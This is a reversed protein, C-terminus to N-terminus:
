LNSVTEQFHLLSSHFMFVFILIMHRKVAQAKIAKPKIRPSVTTTRFLATLMQRSHIPSPQFMCVCLWSVSGGNGAKPVAYRSM